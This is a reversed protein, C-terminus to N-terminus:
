GFALAVASMVTPGLFQWAAPQADPAFGAGAIWVALAWAMAAAGRRRSRM